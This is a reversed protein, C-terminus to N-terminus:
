NSRQHRQNFQNESIKGLFIQPFDYFIQTILTRYKM